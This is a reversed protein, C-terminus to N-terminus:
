FGFYFRKIIPLSDQMHSFRHRGGEFLFVEYHNKLYDITAPVDIVEDGKDILILGSGKLCFAGYKDYQMVSETTMEIERGYYDRQWGIYKSLSNTPFIVPNISVFPLKFFCGLYAVSWGGMSTGILLEPKNNDVVRILENILTKSKTYDPAFGVVDGLQKMHFYKDSNEDVKSGFGHLYLIKM